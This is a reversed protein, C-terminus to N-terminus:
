FKEIDIQEVENILKNCNAIANYSTSWINRALGLVQTHGHNVISPNAAYQLEAVIDNMLYDQGMASYLGWTYNRGFLTQGSIQQYIGNLANRVGSVEAFLDDDSIQNSPKVDLWKACSGFSVLLAIALSFLTFKHKISKM